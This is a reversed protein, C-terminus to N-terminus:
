QVLRLALQTFGAARLSQESMANSADAPLTHRMIAAGARVELRMWRALQFGLEGFIAGGARRVEDTQMRRVAWVNGLAEIGLAGRVRPHLEYEARVHKPIFMDFRFRSGDQQHVYGIIPLVPIVFEPASTYVAGALIADDPGLVWHVMASSTVQLASWNSARLDSAYATGFSVRISRGPALTSSAALTADFRHLQLSDDGTETPFTLHTMTYGALLGLRFARGRVLPAAAKLRLDQTTLEGDYIASYAAMVGDTRPSLKAAETAVPAAPAADGTAEASADGTAVGLLILVGTLRWLAHM